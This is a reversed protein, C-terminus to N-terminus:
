DRGEEIWAKVQAHDLWIGARQLSDSFEAARDFAARQEARTRVRGVSTTLCEIAEQNLSRRHAAAQEKLRRYLDDPVNKLTLTAM